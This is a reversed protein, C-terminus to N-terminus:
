MRRDTMVRQQVHCIRTNVVKDGLANGQDKESGRFSEASETLHVEVDGKCRLCEAGGNLQLVVDPHLQM